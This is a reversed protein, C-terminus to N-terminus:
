QGGSDIVTCFIDHNKDEVASLPAFHCMKGGVGPLAVSNIGFFFIIFSTPDQAFYREVERSM